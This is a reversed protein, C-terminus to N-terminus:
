AVLPQIWQTRLRDPDFNQFAWKRNRRSFPALDNKQAGNSASSLATSGRFKSILGAPHVNDARGGTLSYVDSERM